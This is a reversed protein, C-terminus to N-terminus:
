RRVIQRVSVACGAVMVVLTLLLLLLDVISILTHRPARGQYQLALHISFPMGALGTPGVAGFLGMLLSVANDFM